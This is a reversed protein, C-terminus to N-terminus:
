IKIFSSFFIGEARRGGEENTASVYKEYLNSKDNKETPFFIKMYRGQFFRGCDDFLM